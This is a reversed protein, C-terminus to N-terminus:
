GHPLNAQSQRCRSAPNMYNINLFIKPFGYKDEKIFFIFLELLLLIACSDFLSLTSFLDHSKIM